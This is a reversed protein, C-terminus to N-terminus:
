FTFNKENTSTKEKDLYIDHVYDKKELDYIAIFEIRGLWSRWKKLMIRTVSYRKSNYKHPVYWPFDDEKCLLIITTAEKPINSSWHLDFEDPIPNLKKNRKRLHSVLVVPKKITDTMLKLERMIEWTERNENESELHIYHLHDIIFMDYKDRSKTIMEKLFALTTKATKNYVHLNEKINTSFEKIVKKEEEKYSSGDYRYKATKVETIESIRRQIERLAIEELSWELNFLLVKKWRRANEIAIKYSLESKWVWTDAWIVVLDDPLIWQFYKDFIWYTCLTKKSIWQRYKQSQYLLEWFNMVYDSVDNIQPLNSEQQKKKYDNKPKNEDINKVHQFKDIFFTFTDADSLWKEFKVFSFCNYWPKSSKLHTSWTNVLINDIVYMWMNKWDSKSKFNKWDNQMQVWFHECVIERIDIQNIADYVPNDWIISKNVYTHAEYESDKSKKYKRAYEEVNDFPFTKNNEILIKVEKPELWFKTERKTNKTWPLRMIRSLNCCAKDTIFKEDGFLEDSYQMFYRVYDKYKNKDWALDKETVYYVHFWNWSFVIMNYDCLIEDNDLTEKLFKYWDRLEDDTINWWANQRVDYDLAFYYKSEIDSDSCRKDTKNTNWVFYVDSWNNTLLTTISDLYCVQLESKPIKLNNFFKM